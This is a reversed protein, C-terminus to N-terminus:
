GETMGLYIMLGLGITFALGLVFRLPRLGKEVFQEKTFLGLLSVGSLFLVLSLGHLRANVGTIWRSGSQSVYFAEGMVMSHLGSLIVGTVMFGLVWGLFKHFPTRRFMERLFAQKEVGQREGSHDSNQNAQEM